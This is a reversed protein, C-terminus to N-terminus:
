AATTSNGGDLVLEADARDTDVEPLSASEDIISLNREGNGLEVQQCKQHATGAPHEAPLLQQALDPTVRRDRTGSRNVNVCGLQAGLKARLQAVHDDGTRTGADSAYGWVESLLQERSFVWGPRRM